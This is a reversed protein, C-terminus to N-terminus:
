RGRAAEIQSKAREIAARQVSEANEELFADAQELAAEYRSQRAYLNMLALRAQAHGDVIDLARQLSQEAEDYLELKYFTAGLYFQADGSVPNLRIAQELFNIAQQFSIAAEELNGGTSQLEGEKYHLM